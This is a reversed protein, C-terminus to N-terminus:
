KKSLTCTLTSLEGMQELDIFSLTQGKITLQENTLSFAIQGIMTEMPNAENHPYLSHMKDFYVGKMILMSMDNSWELSTHEYAASLNDSTTETHLPGIKLEQGDINFYTDDNEITVDMSIEIDDALSCNGSWSGSFDTYNQNKHKAMPKTHVNVASHLSRKGPMLKQFFDSAFLPTTLLSGTILVTVIINKNM